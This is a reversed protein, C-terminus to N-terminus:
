WGLAFSVYKIGEHEFSREELRIPGGYTHTKIEAGLERALKIFEPYNRIEVTIVPINLGRQKVLGEDACYIRVNELGRPTKESIEYQKLLSKVQEIRERTEKAAKECTEDVRM